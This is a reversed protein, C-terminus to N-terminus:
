GAHDLFLQNTQGPNRVAPLVAWGLHAITADDFAVSNHNLDGIRVADSDDAIAVGKLSVSSDL